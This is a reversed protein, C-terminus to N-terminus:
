VGGLNNIVNELSKKDEINYVNVKKSIKKVFGCLTKKVGIEIFTDIGDEVLRDISERFKVGSVVQEPAFKISQEKNMYDGSVNSVIKITPENFNYKKIEQELQQKAENMLPSHFAGSVNLPVVRKAGKQKLEDSVLKVEDADGSIVFQQPCNDNAIVVNSSIDQMIGLDVGIIASMAGNTKAASIDMFKARADVIKLADEFSLIGSAVLASYEGLSFGAVVSPILNNSKAVYYAAMTTTFLAPQTYRTQNIVGQKDTFCVEKIDWGLIESAKDYIERACEYNDYLDQGMGAYQIGQGSFLFAIKM